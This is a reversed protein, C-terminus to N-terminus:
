QASTSNVDPPRVKDPFARYPPPRATKKGGMYITDRDGLDAQRALDPTKIIYKRQVTTTSFYYVNPQFQPFSLRFQVVKFSTFCLLYIFIISAV